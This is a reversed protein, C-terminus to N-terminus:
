NEGHYSIGSVSREPKLLLGNGPPLVDRLFPKGVNEILTYVGVPEDDYLGPVTLKMTAYATRPAPVGVRRFVEYSLSERIRSRDVAGAHLNLTKQGELTEDEGHFDLKVKFNRRLQNQSATYSSNGKYRVGVNQFLSGGITLDARAWPFYGGFGSGIHVMRGDERVYDKEGEEIFGANGGGGRGRQVFTEELAAWEDRFIELRMSILRSLGFPEVEPIPDISSVQARPAPEIGPVSSGTILLPAACALALLTPGVIRRLLSRRKQVSSEM